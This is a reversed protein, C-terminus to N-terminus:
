IGDDKQLNIQYDRVTRHFLACDTLEGEIRAQWGAAPNGRKCGV